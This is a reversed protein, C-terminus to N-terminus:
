SGKKNLICEMPKAALVMELCKNCSICRSRRHDGKKWENIIEPESILPRCLAIFDAEKREIVEEMLKFTKFGGQTILPLDVKARVERTWDRYYAEREISDIKQKFETGEYVEGRVGLSIEIADYGWEELYKAARKGEKIELGGPFGDEVGFKIFVPFGKGVKKRMNKYIEHHFRLRNELSGGWQDSRRNTFPSLFESVLMGHGGHIQVGDFGADQARRAGDGFADIVKWIEDETLTRNDGKRYPDNDVYSPAVALINHKNLVSAATKGGHNLQMAIKAGEQHVANVLKSWGPIYDDSALSGQIPAVQSLMDIRMGGTVILGVGGAALATYLKIQSETVYGYKDIWGDGTASRVFRNRLSMKGIKGPEFLISM